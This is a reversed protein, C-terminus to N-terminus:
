TRRSQSRRPSRYKANGRGYTRNFYRSHEGHGSGLRRGSDGVPVHRSTAISARETIIQSVSIKEISSLQNGFCGDRVSGFPRLSSGRLSRACSFSMISAARFSLRPRINPGVPAAALNPMGREVSSDFIRDSFISLFRKLVEGPVQPSELFTPLSVEEDFGHCKREKTGTRYGRRLSKFSRPELPSAATASRARSNPAASAYCTM